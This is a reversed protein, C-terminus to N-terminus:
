QFPSYGTSSSKLAASTTYTGNLLTLIEVNNGAYNIATKQHEDKIKVSAGHELLSKVVATNQTAVAAMLATTGSTNRADFNSYNHVLLKVIRDQKQTIATILPTNGDQDTITVNAGKNILFKVAAVDGENIATFINQAMAFTAGAVLLLTLLTIKKKM